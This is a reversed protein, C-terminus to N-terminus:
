YIQLCAKTLGYRKGIENAKQLHKEQILLNNKPNADLTNDCIIKEAEEVSYGCAVLFLLIIAPSRNQGAVCHVFVPCNDVAITQGLYALAAECIEIPVPTFDPFGLSKIHFGDVLPQESSAVNLIHSIQHERLFHYAQEEPWPGQYIKPTIKFIGIRAYEWCIM